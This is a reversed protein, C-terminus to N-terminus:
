SQLRSWHKLQVTLSAGGGEGVEDVQGTEGNNQKILILVIKNICGFTVVNGHSNKEIQAIHGGGIRLMLGCQVTPAVCAIPFTLSELM